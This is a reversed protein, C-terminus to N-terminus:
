EIEVVELNCRITKGALPHNLDITVADVDIAIVECSCVDGKKNRLEIVQGIEVNKGLLVEKPEKRVLEDRRHGFGEEPPIVVEKKQSVEMGILGDELGKIFKREGVKCQIPAEEKSSSFVRDDELKASYHFKVLSGKEVAM